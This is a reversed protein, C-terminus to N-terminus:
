VSMGEILVKAIMGFIMMILGLVFLALMAYLRKLTKRSFQGSNATWEFNVEIGCEPCKTSKKNLFSLDYGCKCTWGEEEKFPFLLAASIWLLLSSLFIFYYPPCNRVGVFRLCKYTKFGIAGFLIPTVIALIALIFLYM